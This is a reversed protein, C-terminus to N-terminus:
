PTEMAKARSWFAEKDKESIRQTRVTVTFQPRALALLMFDDLLARSDLYTGYLEPRGEREVYMQHVYTQPTVTM